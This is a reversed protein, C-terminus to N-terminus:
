VNKLMKTWIQAGCNRVFDSNPGQKGNQDEHALVIARPRLVNPYVIRNGRQLIQDVFSLEDSNNQLAKPVRYIQNTTLANNVQTIESDTHSAQKTEETQKACPTMQQVLSCVYRNACSEVNSPTKNSILCYDQYPIQWIRWALGTFLQLITNRYAHFGTNLEHLVNEQQTCKLNSYTSLPATIDRVWINKSLPPHSFPWPGANLRAMNWKQKQSRSGCAVPRYSMDSQQQLLAAKVAWPSADTILRTPASLNFHALVASPQQTGNEGEWFSRSAATDVSVKCKSKNAATSSIHHQQLERYLSFLSKNIQSLGFKQKVSSDPQIGNSSVIHGFM